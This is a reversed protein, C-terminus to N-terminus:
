AAHVLTDSLEARRNIGWVVFMVGHM